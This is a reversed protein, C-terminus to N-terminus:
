SPNLSLIQALETLNAMCISIERQHILKQIPMKAKARQKSLGEMKMLEFDILYICSILRPPEFPLIKKIVPEKNLYLSNLLSRRLLFAFWFPDRYQPGYGLDEFDLVCIKNDVFLINGPSLDGHVLGIPEILYEDPLNRLSHILKLALSSWGKTELHINSLNSQARRLSFVPGHDILNANKLAFSHFCDIWKQLLEMCHLLKDTKKQDRWPNRDIRLSDRLIKSLLDGKVETTVVLGAHPQTDLVAPALIWNNTESLKQALLLGQVERAFDDCSLGIKIFLSSKSRKDFVQWVGQRGMRAGHFPFAEFHNADTPLQKILAIAEPLWSIDVDGLSLSM